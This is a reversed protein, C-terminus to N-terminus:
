PGGGAFNWIYYAKASIAWQGGSHSDNATTSGGQIQASTQSSQTDHASLSWFAFVYDKGDPVYHIKSPASASVWNDSSPTDIGSGVVPPPGGTRRKVRYGTTSDGNLLIYQWNVSTIMTIPRETLPCHPM